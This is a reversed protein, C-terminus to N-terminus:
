PLEGVKATDQYTVALALAAWLHSTIGYLPGGKKTAAKGGYRDILAQRINADKARASGCLHLKVDRRGLLSWPRGDQRTWAEAFRGSWVCTTFVERGVAMGYSQIEEIVLHVGDDFVGFVRSRLAALLQDNDWIAGCVSGDSRLSMLASQETGPDIAYLTVNTAEPTPTPV